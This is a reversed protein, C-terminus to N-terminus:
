RQIPVTVPNATGTDTQYGVGNIGGFVNVVLVSGPPPPSLLLVNFTGTV